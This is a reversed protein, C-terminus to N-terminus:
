RTRFVDKIHTKYYFLNVLHWYDDLFFDINVKDFDFIQWQLQDEEKNFQYFCTPEDFFTYNGLNIQTWSQQHLSEFLIVILGFSVITKHQILYMRVQNSSMKTRREWYTNGSVINSVVKLYLPATQFYKVSKRYCCSLFFNGPM